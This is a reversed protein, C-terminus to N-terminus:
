CSVSDLWKGLAVSSAPPLVSESWYVRPWNRVAPLLPAPRRVAGADVGVSFLVHAPVVPAHVALQARPRRSPVSHLGRWLILHGSVPTADFSLVVELVKFSLM